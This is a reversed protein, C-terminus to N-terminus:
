QGLTFDRVKWYPLDFLISRRKVGHRKVPDEMSNEHGGAALFESRETGWTLVEEGSPREPAMDLEPLNNFAALARRYRHDIHLYRRGGLFIMKSLLPAHEACTEPGCLPCGKYGSVQQGSLLGYAPFDNITWILMARLTFRRNGEPMAMNIAPVGVWLKQLDRVIPALFVDISEATPSKPGPILLALSLFFKKTLLWPPLNYVTILLVWTSHKIANNRYPIIGDGVLGLRLNTHVSAFEPENEDITKWQPSDAVSRMLEGRSKHTQYWTMHKAVEPCKFMRQLHRIVDFYRAVRQPVRNSGPIYRVQQCTPCEQLDENVGVYLVHGDPCCHVQDHKLGLKMLLTKVEYTTRPFKNSTPLLDGAIWTLLADLFTHPVSYLTCLSFLVIACQLRNQSSGEYVRETSERIMQELNAENYEVDGDGADVDMNAGEGDNIINRHIDDIHGFADRAMNEIDVATRQPWTFGQDGDYRGEARYHESENPHARAPGRVNQGDVTQHILSLYPEIYTVFRNVNIIM